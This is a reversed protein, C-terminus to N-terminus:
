RSNSVCPHCTVDSLIVYTIVYLSLHSSSAVSHSFQGAPGCSAAFCHQVRRACRLLVPRLLLLLLWACVCVSLCAHPCASLSLLTTEARCPLTYTSHQHRCSPTTWRCHTLRTCRQNFPPESCDNSWSRSYEIMLLLAVPGNM